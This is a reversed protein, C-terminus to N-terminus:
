VLRTVSWMLLLCRVTMTGARLLNLRLLRRLVRADYGCELKLHCRACGCWTIVWVVVILGANCSAVWIPFHGPHIWFLLLGSFADAVLLATAPGFTRRDYAKQYRPLDEKGVLSLMPYQDIQAYWLIGTFACALALHVVLIHM